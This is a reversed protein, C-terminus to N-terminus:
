GYIEVPCPTDDETIPRGMPEGWLCNTSTHVITRVGHRKMADVVQKTGEVNCSWLFNKDHVAHALIAALHFVASFSHKIFLADLLKADRIDGQVTVLNEHTSADKELDVSVVAYGRQLLSTKLIDGFFGAGGTILVTEM